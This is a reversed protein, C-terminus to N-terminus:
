AVEKQRPRRLRVDRSGRFRLDCPARPTRRVAIDGHRTRDGAVRLSVARDKASRAEAARPGDPPRPRGQRLEQGPLTGCPVEADGERDLPQLLQRFQLVARSAARAASCPGRGGDGRPLAAQLSPAVAEVAEEAGLLSTHVSQSCGGSMRAAFQRALIEGLSALTRLRQHQPRPFEVERSASPGPELLLREVCRHARYWEAIRDWTREARCADSNFVLVGTNFYREVDTPLIGSEWVVRGANDGYKDYEYACAVLDPRSPDPGSLDLEFLPTVDANFLMDIDFHIVNGKADPLLMPTFVPTWTFVNWRSGERPAIVDAYPELAKEVDVYRLTAGPFRAVIAALEAKHEASHGGWGEFINVRLPEDGGYRDLLSWVAVKLFPTGRDDCSFAVDNM